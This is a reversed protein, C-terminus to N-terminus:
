SLIVEFDKLTQTALAGLNRELYEANKYAPICVSIKMM